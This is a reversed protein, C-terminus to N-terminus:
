GHYRKQEKLLAARFLAAAAAPSHIAIEVEINKVQM